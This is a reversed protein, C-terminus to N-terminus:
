VNVQQAGRPNFFDLVEQSHAIPLDKVKIMGPKIEQGVPLWGPKVLKEKVKDLPIWQIKVDEGNRGKVFGERPKEGTLKEFSKPIARDYLKQYVDKTLNGLDGETKGKALDSLIVKSNENGTLRKIKELDTARELMNGNKDLLNIISKGDTNDFKWSLDKLNKYYREHQVESPTWSIADKGSSLADRLHDKALLEVYKEGRLPVNEVSQDNHNFYKQTLTDKTNDLELGKAFGKPTSRDVTRGEVLSNRYQEAAFVENPNTSRLATLEKRAWDSDDDLYEVAFKYKDSEALSPVGKPEGYGFKSGKEHFQSQVEDLHLSNTKVQNNYDDLSVKGRHYSTIPITSIEKDGFRRHAVAGEGFHGEEFKVGPYSYVANKFSPDGESFLSYSSHIGPSEKKSFGLAGEEAIKGIETMKTPGIRDKGIASLAEGVGSFMLEDDKIGASQLTKLVQEGSMRPSLQSKGIVGEKLAKTLPSFFGQMQIAGLGKSAGPALASGGSIDALTSIPDLVDHTKMYESAGKGSDFLNTGSALEGVKRGVDKVLNTVPNDKIFNIL